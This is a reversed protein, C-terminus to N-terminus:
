VCRSTYLLCIGALPVEHGDLNATLDCAARAATPIIQPLCAHPIGFLELLVPDWECSRINFLLTRSANTADTVHRKGGTLRWALWSDITGFALEGRQARERAGPVHELLWALKTASFYPDLLLGTRRAIDPEHGDARLRQRKYM